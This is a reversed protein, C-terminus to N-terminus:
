DYDLNRHNKKKRELESTETNPFSPNRTGRFVRCYRKLIVGSKGICLMCIEPLTPTTMVIHIKLVLRKVPQKDLIWKMNEHM